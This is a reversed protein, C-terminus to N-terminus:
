GVGVRSQAGERVQEAGARGQQQGGGRAGGKSRARQGQRQGPAQGESPSAVPPIVAPGPRTDGIQPRRVLAREAAEASPRGESIREPLEPHHDQALGTLADATGHEDPEEHDFEDDDIEDDDIASVGDSPHGDISPRIPKKRNKGGRSGRRRKRAASSIEPEGIQGTDDTDAATPAAEAPEPTTLAATEIESNEM